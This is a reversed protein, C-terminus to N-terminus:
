TTPYVFVRGPEVLSGPEGVFLEDDGDDDIDGVALDWGYSDMVLPTPEDIRLVADHINVMVLWEDTVDSRGNADCVRQSQDDNGCFNGDLTIDGTTADAGVTVWFTFDETSSAQLTTPNFPDAVWTYEDTVETTGDFFRPRTVQTPNLLDIYVPTLDDSSTNEVELVIKLNYARQFVEECDSSVSRV